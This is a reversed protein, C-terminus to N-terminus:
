KWNLPTAALPGHGCGYQKGVEPNGESVPYTEATSAQLREPESLDYLEAAAGVAEFGARRRGIRGLYGRMARQEAPSAHAFVVWVRPRGRFRELERLYERPQGRHCGGFTAESPEIGVRPGYFRVAREAGYYVYIVDGPQRRSALTALIPRTDENRYVPPNWATAVALSVAFLAGGVPQPVHLRALGDVILGAGDAAALLAAPTLFLIARGSFPYQHTVAAALAVAAPGILLPAAESRKKWLVPSALLVLAVVIPRPLSPQWFYQMYERTAPTLSHFGLAVAAAASAAWLGLMGALRAPLRVRGERLALVALAAGLGAVMLVAGMSFWVATAGALGALLFRSSREPANRLGLAILTLALSVCVDTSYQKAEASYSILIPSFAFLAMAFVSTWGPRTRLALIAFLPLSALGCVLPTLRLAFETPGLASTALKLAALFGPPAVQDLALPESLLACFPTRIVNEAVAIEDVWLSTNGFYQWLRLAAGALVLLVLSLRLVPKM